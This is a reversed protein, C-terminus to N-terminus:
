PQSAVSFHALKFDYSIVNSVYGVTNMGNKVWYFFCASANKQKNYYNSTTM